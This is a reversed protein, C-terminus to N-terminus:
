KSRHSKIIRVLGQCPIGYVKAFILFKVYFPFGTARRIAPLHPKLSASYNFGPIKPYFLADYALHVLAKDFYQQVPTLDFHESIKELVSLKDRFTPAANTLSAANQTRDYHYVSESTYSIRLPHALLSLIFLMDEATHLSFDFRIQYKQIIDRRILKNWISCCLDHMTQGMVTWHDSSAPKQSWYEEGDQLHCIVDFIVVDANDREATRVSHELVTPEIWDDSDIHLTYEGCAADIGAQRASAVGGNAKRIIHFRDDKMCYSEAIVPTGDTSGDDVVLVEFDTYTQMAISELCRALYKEANYAAVILSVKVPHMM